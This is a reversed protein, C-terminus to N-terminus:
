KTNLKELAPELIIITNYKMIDEPNIYDVTLYKVNEINRFSKALNENKKDLIFLTKKGSMGLNKLIATAEKTKPAKMDFAELGYIENAKAKLTLLGYLAIKKAKKNM